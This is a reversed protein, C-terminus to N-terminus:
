LRKKDLIGYSRIVYRHEVCVIEVLLGDWAEKIFRFFTARSINHAYKIDIIRVGNNQSIYRIIDIAKEIKM